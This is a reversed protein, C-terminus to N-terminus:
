GALPRPGAARPPTAPSERAPSKQDRVLRPDPSLDIEAHAYGEPWLPIGSERMAHLKQAYDSGRWVAQPVAPYGAAAACALAQIDRVHYYGDGERTSPKRVGALCVDSAIAWWSKGKERWDLIRQGLEQEDTDPSYGCLKGRKDKVRQWGYPRTWSYPQCTKRKYAYVERKRQGHLESEWQAAVATFGAIARGNPSDIDVDMDLLKLRVGIKRWSDITNAMDALRRFMRDMKTAVVIDGSQLIDWLLKGQPRDQLRVSLASVDEDVFEADFTIGAGAAWQMLRDVQAERGNEQKDTSVRGYLYIM